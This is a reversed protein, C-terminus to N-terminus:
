SALVAVGVARRHFQHFELTVRHADQDDFVVIGERGRQAIPQGFAAVARAASDGGGLGEVLHRLRARRVEHQQIEAQGVGVAELDARADPPKTRHGDDDHGRAAVQRRPDLPEAAAGVVVDDLREGERLQERADFRDQAAREGREGRRPDVDPRKRDVEGRSCDGDGPRAHRQRGLLELQERRKRACGADRDIALPQEDLDPLAVVGRESRVSSTCM